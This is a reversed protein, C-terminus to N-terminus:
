RAMSRQGLRYGSPLRVLPQIKKASARADMGIAIAGMEFAQAGRGGSDAGDAGIAIAGSATAFANAGLAVSNDATADANFGIATSERGSATAEAGFASAEDPVASANQGCATTSGANSDAGGTGDPIGDNDIDLVCDEAAVPAPQFTLAALTATAAATSLLNTKKM